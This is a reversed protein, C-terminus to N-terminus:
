SSNNDAAIVRAETLDIWGSLVMGQVFALAACFAVLWVALSGGWRGAAVEATAARLCFRSRQAAAGFLLGVVAGAAALAGPEGLTNILSEM